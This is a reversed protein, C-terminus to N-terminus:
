RAASPLREGSALAAATKASQAKLADSNWAARVLAALAVAGRAAGFCFLPAVLSGWYQNFDHGVIAFGVLYGSAALAIRMGAPSNWTAFGVLACALYVATIWQPLLLLYCNMQITSIVFGAGGFRVWGQAHAHDGAQILPLVKSVHLAFLGAYVTFGAAWAALERPKRQWLALAACLLCYPAALERIALAALAAGCGIKWRGFGYAAVSLGILIGAWVEPMVFLDGLACPLLAGTLLLSFLAGARRGAEDHVLAYGMALLAFGLICLLVKAMQPDPLAGAPWMPLPTRWNFISRTPYGRARLEAAAADYYSQGAAIRDVEARYLEVDGPGRSPADAFGSRLPSLTVAVFFLAALAAVVLTARARGPRLATEALCPLKM